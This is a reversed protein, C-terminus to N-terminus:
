DIFVTDATVQENSTIKVVSKDSPKIKFTDVEYDNIISVSSVYGSKYTLFEGDWYWHNTLNPYYRSYYSIESPNITKLLAKRGVYDIKKGFKPYAEIFNDHVEPMIEQLHALFLPVKEKQYSTIEGGMM